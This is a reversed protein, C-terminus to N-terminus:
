DVEGDARDGAEDERTEVCPRELGVPQALTLGPRCGALQLAPFSIAARPRWLAQQNGVVDCPDTAHRERGSVFPLIPLPPRRCRLAVTRGQSVARHARLLSIPSGIMWTRSM